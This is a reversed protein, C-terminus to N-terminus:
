SCFVMVTVCPLATTVIASVAPKDSRHPTVPSPTRGKECITETSLEVWTVNFMGASADPVNSTVNEFISYGNGESQFFWIGCVSHSLVFRQGKIPGCVGCAQCDNLDPM